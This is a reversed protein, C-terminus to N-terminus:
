ILKKRKFYKRLYAIQWLGMALVSLMMAAEVWLLRGGAWVSSARVRVFGQQQSMDNQQCTTAKTNAKAWTHTSTTPRCTAILTSLSFGLSRGLSM